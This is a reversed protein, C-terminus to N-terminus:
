SVEEIDEVGVYGYVEKWQYETECKVCHGVCFCVIYSFDSSSDYTDDNEIIGGCKPCIAVEMM